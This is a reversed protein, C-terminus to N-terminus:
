KYRISKERLEIKKQFAAWSLEGSNAMVCLEKFQCYRCQWNDPYSSIRDPVIDSDIKKKTEELHKLLGTVRKKDYNVVYEKLVLTNKNVYLLIGKPIELYHLYMQIQDVNEEKPETM